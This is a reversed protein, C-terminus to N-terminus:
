NKELLYVTQNVFTTGGKAFSSPTTSVVHWGTKTLENVKALAVKQVEMFGTTIKEASRIKVDVAQETQQGNPLVTTVNADASFSNLTFNCVVMMYGTPEAAKPYFAWSSATALALGLFLLPKKM